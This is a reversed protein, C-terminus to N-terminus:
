EDEKDEKDIKPEKSQQEKRFKRYQRLLGRDLKRRGTTEVSAANAEATKTVDTKDGEVATQQAAPAPVTPARVFSNSEQLNKCFENFEREKEQNKEDLVKLRAAKLDEWQKFANFSADKGFPSAGFKTNEPFLEWLSKNKIEKLLPNMVCMGTISERLPHEGLDSTLTDTDFFIGLIALNPEIAGFGDKAVAGPIRRRPLRHNPHLQFDYKFGLSPMQQEHKPISLKKEPPGTMHLQTQFQETSMDQLEQSPKPLDKFSMYKQAFRKPAKEGVDTKTGNRGLAKEETRGKTLALKKPPAAAPGDEPKSGSNKSSLFRLSTRSLVRSTIQLGAPGSRRYIYLTMM